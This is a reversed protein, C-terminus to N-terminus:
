ETDLIKHYELESKPIPPKREAPYGFAVISEVRMQESLGLVDKVYDEATVADNHMRKRIQIWCSGM